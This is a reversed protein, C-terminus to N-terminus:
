PQTAGHRPRSALGGGHDAGMIQAQDLQATRCLHSRLSLGGLNQFLKAWVQPTDNYSQFSVADQCSISSILVLTFRPIM